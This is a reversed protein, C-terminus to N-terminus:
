NKSSNAHIDKPEVENFTEKEDKVEKLSDEYNKLLIDIDGKFKILDDVTEIGYDKYKDLMTQLQLANDIPTVARTKAKVGINSSGIPAIGTELYRNLIRDFACDKSSDIVEQQNIEGVKLVTKNIEDYVYEPILDSFSQSCSSTRNKLEEKSYIM